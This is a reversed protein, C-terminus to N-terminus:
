PNSLHDLQQSCRRSNWLIRSRYGTCVSLRVREQLEVELSRTGERQGGGIGSVYNTSVGHYVYICAFTFLIFAHVTKWSRRLYCKLCHGGLVDGPQGPSLNFPLVLSFQSKGCNTRLELVRVASIQLIPSQAMGALVRNWNWGNQHRSRREEVGESSPMGREPQAELFQNRGTIDCSVSTSLLLVWRAM